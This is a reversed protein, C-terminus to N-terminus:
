PITTEGEFSYLSVIFPTASTLFSGGVAGM